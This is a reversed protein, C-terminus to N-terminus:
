ALRVSIERRRSTARAILLNAVNVCAILLLLCVAGSLVGLSDRVAPEILWERSGMVRVRWGENARPFERELGQAIQYLEQEAIEKSVGAKLRGIVTLRRDGRGRQSEDLAIPVFVDVGRRFALESPAVGTVTWSQGNLPISAGIVRYDGGFRRRWFEEGLIVVRHKGPEHDAAEFVRGALLRQGAVSWFPGLVTLGRAREPNQGDSLTFDESTFAAMTEFKTARERWAQFNPTSSAFGSINRASNTDLIRVVRDPDAFPLPRILVAYLLSYMATASGIGLALTAVATLSFSKEKRLTRVGYRVDQWLMEAHVGAANVIVDGIAGAALWPGAEDRWRDRFALQMEKGYEDRFAQPYLHLLMQYFRLM